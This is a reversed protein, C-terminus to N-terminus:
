VKNQTQLTAEAGNEVIHPENPELSHTDEGISYGQLIFYKSGM